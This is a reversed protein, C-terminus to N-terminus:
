RGDQTIEKVEPNPQQMLEEAKRIDQRSIFASLKDRIIRPNEGDQISLLGEMYLEKQLAEADSMAKLKKSIPTFVLNALIVGYFTTVLAVAMSPGLSATDNLNKLMLILGILTGIMGYAPAYAAMSNIINQGQTHREQIFAIETELINKVLEGDAGDVILMIGKQLFSNDVENVADELALLGERRAVNAIKIILEIDENLDIRKQKFAMSYVSKLSKLMKGPYSIITSAITGGVVIFISAPDFFAGLDGHLLISIVICAIGAGFGIVTSKELALM